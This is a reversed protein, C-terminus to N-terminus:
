RRRIVTLSVSQYSRCHVSLCIARLLESSSIVDTFLTTSSGSPLSVLKSFPADLLVQLALVNPLVEFITRLRDYSLEWFDLHLSRLTGKHKMLNALFGEPLPKPQMAIPLHSQDLQDGAYPRVLRGVHFIELAQM